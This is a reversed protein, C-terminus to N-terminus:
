NFPPYDKDEKDWEQWLWSRWDKILGKIISNDIIDDSKLSAIVINVALSMTSAIKIGLEKNEQATAINQAKTEMAKTIQGASRMPPKVGEPKPPFLYHKGSNSTWLEGEITGGSKIDDFSPMVEGKKSTRNISVDQLKNGSADTLTALVWDQNKKESWDITYKM